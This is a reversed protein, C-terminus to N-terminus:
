GDNYREYMRKQRGSWAHYADPAYLRMLGDIIGVNDEYVPTSNNSIRAPSVYQRIGVPISTGSLMKRQSALKLRRIREEVPSYEWTRGMLHKELRVIRYKPSDFKCVNAFHRKEMIKVEKETKETLYVKAETPVANDIDEKTIIFDAQVNGYAPLIIACLFFACIFVIKINKHM